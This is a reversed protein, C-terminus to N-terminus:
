KWQTLPVFIEIALVIRQFEINSSLRAGDVVRLSILSKADEKPGM